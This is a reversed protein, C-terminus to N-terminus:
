RTNSRMYTNQRLSSPTVPYMDVVKEKVKRNMHPYQPEENRLTVPFANVINEFPVLNVRPSRLHSLSDRHQGPMFSDIKAAFIEVVRDEDCRQLTTEGLHVQASISLGLDHVM